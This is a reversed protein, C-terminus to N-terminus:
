AACSVRASLQTPAVPAGGRRSRKPRAPMRRKRRRRRRTTGQIRSRKPTWMTTRRTVAARATRTAAMMRPLRTARLAMAMPALCATWCAAWRQSSRPSTRMAAPRARSARTRGATSATATATTMAKARRMRMAASPMTATSWPRRQVLARETMAARARAPQRSICRSPWRGTWRWRDGASQQATSRPSPASLTPVAHSHLSPSVRGAAAARTLHSPWM